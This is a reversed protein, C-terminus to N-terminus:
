WKELEWDAWGGPLNIGPKYHLEMLERKETIEEHIPRALLLLESLFRNRLQIIRAGYVSLQEDWIALQEEFVQDNKLLQNRQKLIKQYRKLSHYYLPSIQVMEGDIFQRREQPSDKVVKLDEPSFLVAKVTGM